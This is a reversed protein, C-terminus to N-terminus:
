WLGLRVGFELKSIRDSAFTLTMAGNVSPISWARLRKSTAVGEVTVTNGNAAVEDVRVMRLDAEFRETHWDRIADAGTFHSNQFEITADPAYFGVCKELDRSEFAAIYNEVIAKLDEPLADAM